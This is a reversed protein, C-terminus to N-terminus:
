EDSEEFARVVAKRAEPFEKLADMLRVMMKRFEPIDELRVAAHRPVVRTEMVRMALQPANSVAPRAAPWPRPLMSLKTRAHRANEKVFHM